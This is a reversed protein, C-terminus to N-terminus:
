LGIYIGFLQIRLRCAFLRNRTKHRDESRTQGDTDYAEIDYGKVLWRRGGDEDKEANLKSSVRVGLSENRGVWYIHEYWTAGDEPYVEFGNGSRSTYPDFTYIMVSDRAKARRQYMPDIVLQVSDM